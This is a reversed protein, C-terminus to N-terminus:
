PEMVGLWALRREEFWHENFKPSRFTNKMQLEFVERGRQLLEVEDVGSDGGDVTM